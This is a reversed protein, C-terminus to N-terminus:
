GIPSSSAVSSTHFPFGLATSLELARCFDYTHEGIKVFGKRPTYLSSLSLILKGIFEEDTNVSTSVVSM